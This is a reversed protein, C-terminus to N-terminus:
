TGCPPVTLGVTPTRRSVPDAAGGGSERGLWERPAGPTNTTIADVGGQSLAEWKAPDDVTWTWVALGRAHAYRIFEETLANANVNLGHLGDVVAQNVVARWEMPDAPIKSTLWLCPLAPELEAVRNCNPRDFSIIVTRELAGEQRIVEVVQDAIGAQKIEVVIQMPDNAHQRLLERLSPVPEGAYAPSKWSGADLAHLQDMTLETGPGEGDTTRDVIADHMLFAEGDASLYVDCEALDAGEESAERYAVLTNEPAVSSNGRHAVNLVRSYPQVMPGQQM